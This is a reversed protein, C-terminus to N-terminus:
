FISSDSVFNCAVIFVLLLTAAMVYLDYYANWEIVREPAWPEPPPAAEAAPPPAEITSASKEAENQPVSQTEQAETMLITHTFDLHHMSHSCPIRRGAHSLKM